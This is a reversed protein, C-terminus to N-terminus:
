QKPKREDHYENIAKTMIEEFEEKGEFEVHQKFEDFISYSYLKQAKAIVVKDSDKKTRTKEAKDKAIKWLDSRKSFLSTFSKPLHKTYRKCISALWWGQFQKLDAVPSTKEKECFAFLAEVGELNTKRIEENKDTSSNDRVLEYEQRKRQIQELYKNLFEDTWSLIGKPSVNKIESLGSACGKDIIAEFDTDTIRRYKKNNRFGELIQSSIEMIQTKAVQQQVKDGKFINRHGLYAYVRVIGKFITKLAHEADDQVLPPREDLKALKEVV